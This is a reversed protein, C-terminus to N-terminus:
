KDPIVTPRLYFLSSRKCTNAVSISKRRPAKLLHLLSNRSGICSYVVTEVFVFVNQREIVVHENICAVIDAVLRFFKREIRPIHLLTILFFVRTFIITDLAVLAHKRRKTEFAVPMPCSLRVHARKYRGRLYAKANTFVGAINVKM